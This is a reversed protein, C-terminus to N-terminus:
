LFDGSGLLMEGYRGKVECHALSFLCHASNNSRATGGRAGILVEDARAVHGITAIGQIKHTTLNSLDEIPTRRYRHSNCCVQGSCHLQVISGYAGVAGTRHAARTTARSAPKVRWACSTQVASSPHRHTLNERRSLGSSQGGNYGDSRSRCLWCSNYTLSSTGTSLLSYERRGRM